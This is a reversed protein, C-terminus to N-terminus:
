NIVVGSDRVDVGRKLGDTSGLAIARVATESLHQAVELTLKNGDLELELANYIRPLNGKSFEIDVVVGVVQVVTGM